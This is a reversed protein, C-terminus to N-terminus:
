VGRSNIVSGLISDNELNAIVLMNGFIKRNRKDYFRTFASLRVKEMPFLKEEKGGIAIGTVVKEDFDISTVRYFKKTELEKFRTEFNLKNFNKM